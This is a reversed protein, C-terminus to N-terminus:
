RVVLSDADMEAGKPLGMLDLLTPAVNSLAGGEALRIDGANVAILPSPGMSHNTTRDGASGDPNCRCMEECNGHDSTILCVYGLETAVSTLRNLCNDIFGMMEIAASLNGTHGVMDPNAYNVIILDFDESGMAHLIRDTVEGASMEPQLDYTAVKPSPVLVREEGDFPAERGGSMFYTVHAYKETEAIRLQRLGLGSIHEGLTGTPRQPGYAIALDPWPM